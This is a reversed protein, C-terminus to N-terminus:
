ALWAPHEPAVFPLAEERIREVSGQADGIGRGEGAM